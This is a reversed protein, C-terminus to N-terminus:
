QTPPQSSVFEIWNLDLVGGKRPPELRAVVYVENVGSPAHVPVSVTRFASDSSPSVVEALLPGQTSGARIEVLARVGERGALNVKLSEIGSLNMKGLRLWGGSELRAVLGHGGEMFDVVEVGRSAENLAAKRRRAHLVVETRGRLPALGQAGNDTYSAGVVFVGGEQRERKERATLRGTFGSFGSEPDSDALGLIWDVMRSAETLTHQPHPPMPIQQGWVGIGGALVKAALRERAGPERAYKRAVEVYGPGASKEHVTHCSFCTTRQMLQLGPHVAVAHASTRYEGQVSVRKPDMTGQASEGDEADSVHVRCTLAQGDEFFGGDQPEQIVVIPPANGVTIEVEGVGQAGGADEVRLLVKRVGPEEFTFSTSAGEATKGAGFDWVFRVPDGDPDSSGSADFDVRLPQKGALVSAKVVAQPARNGRRYIVRSLQGDTNGHWKYGYELIWLTKDVGLKLDIPKRFSMQPAFSETGAYQGERTLRLVKIWNRAWDYIFLGGEFHEPLGEKSTQGVGARFFPGAMASRAGSGLEPFERSEKTSYWVLAPQAPPLQRLGANRPSDNEPRAADGLKGPVGKPEMSRYPENPGTFLPHGFNGARVAVNVEDYGESGWKPDTNPGVDGWAVWGTTPDVCSHFGNRVGMAYIEPRGEKPDRFLNGEPITYGGESVPHIRLIKGRLDQSNASSRLSDRLVGGESRDIPPASIPPSNDGTGLILNGTSRDFFLGGGMHIAGGFEIPYELLFRESGLNLGGEKTLVFRSLRLVDRKSAPCFFLFVHGTTSFDGSVAVGMLGLETSQTVPVRGVEVTDRERARWRKLTGRMEAILIDGDPLTEIQVADRLGTVLVERELREPDFFEAADIGCGMMAAAWLLAVCFVGVWRGRGWEQLLDRATKM